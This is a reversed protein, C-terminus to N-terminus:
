SFFFFFGASPDPDTPEKEGERMQYRWGKFWFFLLWKFCLLTGEQRREGHGHVPREEYSSGRKLVEESEERSHRPVSGWHGGADLPEQATGIPQYDLVWHCLKRELWDRLYNNLAKGFCAVHQSWNQWWLTCFYLYFVFHFFPVFFHIHLLCPTMM